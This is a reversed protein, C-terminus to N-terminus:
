IPDKPPPNSSLPTAGGTGIADFLNKSFRIYKFGIVGLRM